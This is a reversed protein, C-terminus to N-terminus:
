SPGGGYKKPGFDKMIGAPPRRQQLATAMWEMAPGVHTFFSKYGECLYNLGKEGM